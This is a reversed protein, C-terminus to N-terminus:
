QQVWAFIQSAKRGEYVRSNLHFYRTWLRWVANWQESGTDAAAVPLGADLAAQAGFIAAHSQPSDVLAGKLNAKLREVEDSSRDPNSRLADHLLDATRNLSSRAQQLTLATVDSLLSAYLPYTAPSEQVKKAADEVAAIIDKASVLANPKLQLQPDIPGLDSTPGMLINHAGLALLTGASKAQDPVIVTLEKCRSQAARVLRVATEGDGGPSSLLLHLDEEPSADFILEEFLTVGFSFIADILVIFRCRYKQEYESILTQRQYRLEHQADFLPSRDSM